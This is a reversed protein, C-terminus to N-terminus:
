ELGCGNVVLTAAVCIAAYIESAESGQYIIEALASFVTGPDVAASTEASGNNAEDAVSDMM